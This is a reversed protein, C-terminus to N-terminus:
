ILRHETGELWTRKDTTTKSFEIQSIGRDANCYGTEWWDIVVLVLSVLCM